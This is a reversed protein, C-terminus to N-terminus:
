GRAAQSLVARLSKLAAAPFALRKHRSSEGCDLAVASRSVGLLGALYRVLEANAKGKEPAAAIRVWLEGERVAQLANKSAAPSVRVRLLLREGKIEYCSDADM